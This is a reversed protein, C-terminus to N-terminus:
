RICSNYLSIAAETKIDLRGELNCSLKIFKYFIELEEPTMWKECNTLPARIVKEENSGINIM